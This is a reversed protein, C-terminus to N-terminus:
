IRYSLIKAPVGAVIAYDPIDKTVVANAGVVVGRGLNVGPMIACGSGLWCDEGITIGKKYTDIHQKSILKTKDKYYHNTSILKVHQAIMTHAGIKVDAYSAQVISFDGIYVGYGLTVTSNNTAKIIAYSNLTLCNNFNIISNKDTTISSNKGIYTDSACLSLYNVRRLKYKILLLKLFNKIMTSKKILM